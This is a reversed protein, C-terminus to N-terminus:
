HAATAGNGSAGVGAAALGVRGGGTDGANCGGTNTRSAGGKLQERSVSSVPTSVTRQTLAFLV